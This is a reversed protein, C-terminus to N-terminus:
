DDKEIEREIREVIKELLTKLAEKSGISGYQQLTVPNDQRNFGVILYDTMLTDFHAKGITIAVPEIM